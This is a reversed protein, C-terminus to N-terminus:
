VEKYTVGVKAEVALPLDPAWWPPTTMVECMLAEYDGVADKHVHGVLADHIQLKISGWKIGIERRARNVIEVWDERINLASLGQIYNEVAKAPYLYRRVLKGFKSGTFWLEDSYREAEEDWNTEWHLNHYWIYMGNPMRFGKGAEYCVLGDRGRQTSQGAVLADLQRGTAYWNNVIAKRQARFQNKADEFDFKSMDIPLGLTRSLRIIQAELAAAGSGFGGGLVIGKCLFRADETAKSVEYDFMGSNNGYDSYIDRKERFAVMLDEDESVYGNLRLEIQSKDVSILVHDRQAQLGKRLDGRKTWNQFNSKDGASLRTTHAGGPLLMVPAPGRLSMEVLRQSRTRIQSSRAQVRADALSSLIEDDSDLLEQMFDDVKAFAPISKGKPNKKYQVKVGMSELLRHFTADSRLAAADTIGAKGLVENQKAIHEDRVRTLIKHDLRLEPDAFCRVTEAIAPLESPPFGRELMILFLEGCNLADDICYQGYERLFARSMDALRLGSAKDVADGKNVIRDGYGNDIAWQAAHALRAGGAPVQLGALRFMSLACIPAMARHGYRWRLIAADFHASWAVLMTDDWDIADLAPAIHRGIHLSSRFAGDVFEAISVMIAEFRDDRIYEETTLKTLSYNKRDYFTEFDLTILRPM